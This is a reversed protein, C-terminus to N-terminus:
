ARASYRTSVVRTEYKFNMVWAKATSPLLATATYRSSSPGTLTAAQAVWTRTDAHGSNNTYLLEASNPASPSSVVAQAQTGSSSNSVILPWASASGVAAQAFVYSEDAAWGIPHSHGFGNKISVAISGGTAMYTAAHANLWFNADKTGNLWLSPKTYQGIRLTPEWITQYISNSATTAYQNTMRDLEGCGYIPIAFAFQPALGMVTSTIVGGWSIGCIGIKSAMVRNDNRILNRALIAAGAAHYMWQNTLPNGTDGYIGSRAPGAWAHRQWSGPGAAGQVDTQGEVAIAIAAFGRAMWLAVWQAYATGGGGHVLVVAPYPGAVNQPIGRIAFIRTAAGGYTLGEIYLADMGAQLNASSAGWTRPVAANTALNILAQLPDAAAFSPHPVATMVSAGLGGLIASRRSVLPLRPHPVDFM